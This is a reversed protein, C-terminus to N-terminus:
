AGQILIHDEFGAVSMQRIGAGDRLLFLCSLGTTEALTAGEDAGLVMLATAMADAEMATPALVTVSAVLNDAPRGTRNDIVHGFMGGGTEMGNASTGSTALALGAPDVIHLVREAGAQPNEVGAQWARGSPHQGIGRVEGGLEIFVDQLGVRTLGAVMEDLAYGKAIGCLDLTLGSSSKRLAGPEASLDTFRGTAGTIPGFGFRHVLPGISPEFAGGTRAAVDLAHGAVECFDASAAIWDTSDSRNFRSIESGTRFPSMSLDVRRVVGDVTSRVLAEDTGYAVVARWYTGFALGGLVAIDPSAALAVRPLLTAGIAGGAGVLLKRRTLGM